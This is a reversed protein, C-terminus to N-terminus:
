SIVQVTNFAIYFGLYIVDCTILINFVGAAMIFLYSSIPDVERCGRGIKIFELMIGSQMITTQIDMKFLNIWVMYPDTFGM